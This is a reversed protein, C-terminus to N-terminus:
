KEREGNKYGLKQFDEEILLALDQPIPEGARLLNTAKTFRVNQESHMNKDLTSVLRLTKLVHQKDTWNM